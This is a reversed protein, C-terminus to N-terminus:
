DGNCKEEKEQLMKKKYFAEIEDKLLAKLELFKAMIIQEVIPIEMLSLIESYSLTDVSEFLPVGDRVSLATPALRYDKFIMDGKGTILWNINLGYRESFHYLYSLNPFTKGQEFNTITSQYIELEDALQQQTKDIARRFQSFRSGVAKKVAIKEKSM